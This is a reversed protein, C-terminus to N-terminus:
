RRVIPQEAVRSAARLAAPRDRAVAFVVAVDDAVPLWAAHGTEADDIDVHTRPSETSVGVVVMSVLHRADGLSVASGWGPVGPGLRDAYHLLPRGERTVRLEIDVGGSEEGSRGLSLEEVITGAAGAGLVVDTRIRHRAGAVVITPEPRWELRAREGVQCLTMQRSTEGAPGPWVVTAAATGLALCADAGVVIETDLVDGGVPAAASGVFLVRDPTRRIALPPESRADVLVDRGGRRAVEIRASARM